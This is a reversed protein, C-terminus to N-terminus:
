QLVRELANRRVKLLKLLFAARAESFRFPVDMAACENLTEEIYSEDCSIIGEMAAKSAPYRDNFFECLQFHLAPANNVLTIGCHHTGREIYRDFWNDDKLGPLKAESIEYALSTANDFAPAMAHQPAAGLGLRVLIGWNDPHRDTNGIFADFALVGGWWEAATPVIVQCVQVNYRISHPRGRKKDRIAARTYDSGHYFRLSQEDGPYGYFFEILVGTENSTEDCAIFCRPVHVGTKLSLRYAIFEAWVQGAKWGEARKFLYRHNQILDPHQSTDPCILLRKPNAGVPFIPNDEDQKWNGIQIVAM